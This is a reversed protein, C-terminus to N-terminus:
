GGSLVEKLSPFEELLIRQCELAIDRHEKQTSKDTRIECYHCWSRISGKMYLVTRTSLPLLFRAQEKAIELKLADKYYSEAYQNIDRQAFEFWANTEKPLNDISNQRNKTDQRRAPYVEFETAEAYRQSNHTVIGNAIYNHSPHDVEIDYTEEEGVAEISIIPSWKVTLQGEEKTKELHCKKCIPQLNDLDFSLEPNQSVPQIHDLQLDEKKESDSYCVQCTNADRNLIYNKWKTQWQWVKLRFSHKNSEGNKYLNSNEGKRSSNHMKKRTEKTHVKGYRPQQEKPLNKNWIETYQAVEKKTFGLNHIRLWKRITHYSVGARDAIGQVGTGDAMSNLKAEILWDKSQHIPTGNCAIISEVSLEGLPKWGAKTLFKHEKTTKISKGNALTVKYLSKVGTKFVEKIPATILQGTLEDYTRVNKHLRKDNQKKYLEKIKVRRIKGSGQVLSILSDGSLCFEQFSFSRHRLIQQAIARSTTIELTMDAMEFVSWHGQKACYKLLKNATKHNHQNSPNSVRACYAVLEEATKDPSNTISILKVNSM